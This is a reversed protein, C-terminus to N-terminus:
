HTVVPDLVHEDAARLRAALERLVARALTPVDDILTQFRRADVVYVHMDTTATVTASRRQHDILGMEGITEGPGIVALHQGAVTVEAVGSDVLFAETAPDGERCLVAGARIDAEDVLSAIAALQKPSCARFLWVEALRAVKGDNHKHM